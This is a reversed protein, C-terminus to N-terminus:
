EEASNFYILDSTSSDSNWNCLPLNLHPFMFSLVIAPMGPYILHCSAHPIFSFGMLPDSTAIKSLDKWVGRVVPDFWINYNMEIKRAANWNSNHQLASTQQLKSYTRTGGLKEQGKMESQISFRGKVTAAKYVTSTTVECKIGHKTFQEVFLKIAQLLFRPLMEIQITYCEHAPLKTRNSM